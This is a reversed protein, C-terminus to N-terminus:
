LEPVIDEGVAGRWSGQRGAGRGKRDRGAGWGILQEVAGRGDLGRGKGKAGRDERGPGELEGRGRKLQGVRRCGRLSM